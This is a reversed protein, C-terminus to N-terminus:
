LFSDAERWAIIHYGNRMWNGLPPFPPFVILEDGIDLCALSTSTVGNEYELCVFYEVRDDCPLDKPDKRLDHWRYKEAKEKYSKLEENHAEIIIEARENADYGDGCINRRVVNEFKM